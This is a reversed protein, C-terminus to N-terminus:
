RACSERRASKKGRPNDAAALFSPPQHELFHPIADETHQLHGQTKSMQQAPASVDCLRESFYVRCARALHLFEFANFDTLNISIPTLPSDSTGLNM